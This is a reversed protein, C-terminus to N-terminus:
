FQIWCDNIGIVIKSNADFVKDLEKSEFHTFYGSIHPKESRYKATYPFFRIRNKGYVPFYPDSFAKM